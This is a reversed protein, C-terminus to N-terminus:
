LRLPSPPEASARVKLLRCVTPAIVRADVPSTITSPAVGPAMIIASSTSPSMREVTDLGQRTDDSTIKWGPTVAVFM